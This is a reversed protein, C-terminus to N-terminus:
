NLQYNEIVLSLIFHVYDQEVEKRNILKNKYNYSNTVERLVNYTEFKDGKIKVRVNGDKRKVLENDLTRVKFLVECLKRNFGMRGTYREVVNIKFSDFVITNFVINPDSEQTNLELTYNM